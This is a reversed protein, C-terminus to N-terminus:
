LIQFPLFIVLVLGIINTKEGEWWAEEYNVDVCLGFPLDREGFALPPPLPRIFGRENSCDSSGLGDLGFKVVVM